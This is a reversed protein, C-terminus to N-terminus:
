VGWITYEAYKELYDYMEQMKDAFRCDFEDQEEKYEEIKGELFAIFCNVDLYAIGGDICSPVGALYSDEGDELIFTEDLIYNFLNNDFDKIEITHYKTIEYEGEQKTEIHKKAVIKDEM